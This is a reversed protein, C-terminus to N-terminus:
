KQLQKDLEKSEIKGSVSYVAIEGTPMSQQITGKVVESAGIVASDISGHQVTGETLGKAGKYLDGLSDLKRGVGFTLAEISLNRAPESSTAAFHLRQM